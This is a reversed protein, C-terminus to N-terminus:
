NGLPCSIQLMVGVKKPDTSVDLWLCTGDEREIRMNELVSDVSRVLHDATLILAGAFSISQAVSQISTKSKQERAEFIPAVPAPSAQVLLQPGPKNLSAIAPSQLEPAASTAAAVVCLGFTCLCLAKLLPTALRRLHM